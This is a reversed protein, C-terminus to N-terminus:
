PHGAHFPGTFSAAQAPGPGFPLGATRSVVYLVVSAGIGAIGAVIVSPTPRVVLAIAVGIEIAAIVAMLEGYGWWAAAQQGMLVLHAGGAVSALTIAALRGAPIVAAGATQEETPAAGVPVSSVAPRRARLVREPGPALASGRRGREPRDGRVPVDHRPGRP